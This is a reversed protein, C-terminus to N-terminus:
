PRFRRLALSSAVVSVSSLSMLASALV